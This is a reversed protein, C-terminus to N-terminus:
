CAGRDGCVRMAGGAEVVLAPCRVQASCDIGAKVFSVLLSSGLPTPRGQSGFTVSAAAAATVGGPLSRSRLVDGAEAAEATRSTVSLTTGNLTLQVPGNRKIAESQAFLAEAYAAHGAERLRSNNIYDVMAPVGAAMLLAAIVIVVMLEVLSFGRIARPSCGRDRSM